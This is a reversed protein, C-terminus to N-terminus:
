FCMWPKICCILPDPACPNQYTTCNRTISQVLNGSSDFSECRVFNVGVTCVATGGVPVTINCAIPDSGPCPRSASCQHGWGWLSGGFFLIAWIATLALGQRFQKM